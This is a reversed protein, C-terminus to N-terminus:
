KQLYKLSTLVTFFLEIASYTKSPNVSIFKINFSVDSFINFCFCLIVNEPNPPGRTSGNALRRLDTDVRAMLPGSSPHHGTKPRFGNEEM